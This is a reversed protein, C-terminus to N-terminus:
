RINDAFDNKKRNKSLICKITFKFFSLKNNCLSLHTIVYNNNNIIIHGISSTLYIIVQSIKKYFIQTNIHVNDTICSMAQIFSM